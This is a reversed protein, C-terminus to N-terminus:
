TIYNAKLPAQNHQSKEQHVCQVYECFSCSYAKPSAMTCPHFRYQMFIINNEDIQDVCEVTHM